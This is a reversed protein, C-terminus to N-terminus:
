INTESNRQTRLMIVAIEFLFLHYLLLPFFTRNNESMVFGVWGVLFCEFGSCKALHNFMIHLKLVAIM